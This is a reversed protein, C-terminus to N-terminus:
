RPPLYDSAREKKEKAAAAEAEIRKKGEPTAEKWQRFKKEVHPWQNPPFEAQWFSEPTNMVVWVGIDRGKERLWDPISVEELMEMKEDMFYRPDIRKANKRPRSM